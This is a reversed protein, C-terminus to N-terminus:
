VTFSRYKPFVNYLACPGSRCTFLFSYRTVMVFSRLGSISRCEYAVIFAAKVQVVPFLLVETAYNSSPTYNLQKVYLLRCFENCCKQVKVPKIASRLFM